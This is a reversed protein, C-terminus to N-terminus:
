ISIWSGRPAIKALGDAGITLQRQEWDVDSWKLRLAESMRAGSYALLLIYNTFEQGNKSVAVAKDGDDVDM